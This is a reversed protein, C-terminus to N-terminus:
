SEEVTTPYSASLQLDQPPPGPEGPGAPPGSLLALLTAIVQDRLSHLYFHGGPFFEAHFGACTLHQWALIEEVTVGPDRLGGLATIPVPLASEHPHSYTECVALDARMVPLLMRVLEPHALVQPSTGELREMVALLEPDPLLHTDQRAPVLHPARLGSVILHRPPTGRASLAHALEYCLLAGMSHGFLAFDPGIREALPDILEATLEVASRRPPEKYRSERGPLQIPVVEVGPVLLPAWEWYVSAGAGAHPLCFLQTAGPRALPAAGSEARCLPFWTAGTTM